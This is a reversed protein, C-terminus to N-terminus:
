WRIHSLNMESSSTFTKKKDFGWFLLTKTDGKNLANTDGKFCLAACSAWYVFHFTRKRWLNCSPSVSIFTEHHRRPRVLYYGWFRHSCGSVRRQSDTNACSWVCSIDGQSEGGRYKVCKTKKPRQKTKREKGGLVIVCVDDLVTRHCKVPLHQDKKKKGGRLVVQFTADQSPPFWSATRRWGWRFCM